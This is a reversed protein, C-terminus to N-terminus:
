EREAFMKETLRSKCPCMIVYLFLIIVILLCFISFEHLTVCMVINSTGRVTYRKGSISYKQVIVMEDDKLKVYIHLFEANFM